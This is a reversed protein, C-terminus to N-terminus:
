IIIRETEFLTQLGKKGFFFLFVECAMAIVFIVAFVIIMLPHWGMPKRCLYVDGSSDPFPEPWCRIMGMFVCIKIIVSQKKLAKEFKAKQPETLPQQKKM